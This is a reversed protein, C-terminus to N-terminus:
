VVKVWETVFDKIEDRIKRIEIMKEEDSGTLSSPDRFEMHIRKSKGPFIPCREGSAGDCVTIVYDYKREEKLYDFVSNTKNQSLDYGIEAMAKVVRPNLKGAELGASEAHFRDGAIENLFAEGMQSRASNHICVFLVRLKEM